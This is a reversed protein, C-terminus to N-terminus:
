HQLSRRMERVDTKIEKLDDRILSFEDKTVYKEHEARAAQVDREITALREAQAGRAYQVSGYSIFASLVAPGLWRLVTLAQRRLQPTFLSGM